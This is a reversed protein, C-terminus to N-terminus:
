VIIIRVVATGDDGGDVEDPQLVCVCFRAATNLEWATGCMMVVTV